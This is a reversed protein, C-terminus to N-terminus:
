ANYSLIKWRRCIGQSSWFLTVWDPICPGKTGRGRQGNKWLTRVRFDVDLYLKIFSLYLKIQISNADRFFDTCVQNVFTSQIQTALIERNVLSEVQVAYLEEAAQAIKIEDSELSSLSTVFNASPFAQSLIQHQWVTDTDVKADEELVKMDNVTRFKEKWVEVAPGLQQVDREIKPPTPHIDKKGQRLQEDIWIPALSDVLQLDEPADKIPIWRKSRINLIDQPLVDAEIECTTQRKLYEPSWLNQSDIVESCWVLKDSGGRQKGSRETLTAEPLPCAHESSTKEQHGSNQYLMDSSERKIWGGQVMMAKANRRDPASRRFRINGLQMWGMGHLNFDTKMQLLYPVHSEYPQFPRGLIAGSSLMEAAVTVDKPDYLLIKMWMHETPHYGYFPIGRVLIVDYVKEQQPRVGANGKKERDYPMGVPDGVNEPVNEYMDRRMNLGTNLAVAFRRVYASAACLFCIYLSM